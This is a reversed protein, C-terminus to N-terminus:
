TKIRKKMRDVENVGVCTPMEIREAIAGKFWDHRLAKEGSIRKKPYPTLMKKLLDIGSDSLREKPIMARLKNEPYKNGVVYMGNKTDKFNPWSENTPSGVIRFIADLQEIETKGQFFVEGVALEAFICGISWLDIETSYHTPGLLLEPARYSLSIVEQTMMAPTVRRALGFDCIKLIGENSYLLNSTKLDRHVINKQHLYDVGLLLDKM